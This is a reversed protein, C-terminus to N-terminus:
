APVRLYNLVPVAAEARISSGPVAAHHMQAAASTKATPSAIDIVTPVVDADEDSTAVTGGDGDAGPPASGTCGAPPPPQTM